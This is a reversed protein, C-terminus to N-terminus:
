DALAETIEELPQPSMGVSAIPETNYAVRYSFFNREGFIIILLVITGFVPVEVMSLLWTVKTNINNMGAKTANNTGAIPAHIDESSDRAGGFLRTWNEKQIKTWTSVLSLIAPVCSAAALLTASGFTLINPAQIVYINNQAGGRIPSFPGQEVSCTLGCISTDDANWTFENAPCPVVNTRFFEVTLSLLGALIMVTWVFIMNRGPANFYTESLRVTVPGALVGIACLQFSGYIDM